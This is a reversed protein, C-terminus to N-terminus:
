PAIIDSHVPASLPSPMKRVLDMFDKLVAAINASMAIIEIKLIKNNPNIFSISFLHMLHFTFPHDDNFLLFTKVAINMAIISAKAAVLQPISLVGDGDGFWVEEASPFCFILKTRSQTGLV